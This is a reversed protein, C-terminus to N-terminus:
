FDGCAMLFCVGGFAYVLVIFVLDKCFDPLSNWVDRVECGREFFRVFLSCGVGLGGVLVVYLGV